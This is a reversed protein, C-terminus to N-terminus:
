AELHYEKVLKDFLRIAEPSLCIELTIQDDSKCNPPVDIYGTRHKEPLVPIMRGLLRAKKKYAPDDRDIKFPPFKSPELDEGDGLIYKIAEEDDLPISEVDGAKEGAMTLSREATSIKPIICSGPVYDLCYYDDGIGDNPEIVYVGEPERDSCNKCRVLHPWLDTFNM